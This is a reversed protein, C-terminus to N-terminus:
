AHTAKVHKTVGMFSLDFSLTEEGVIFNKEQDSSVMITGETNTRVSGIVDGVQAFSEFSGDWFNVTTDNNVLEVKITNHSVTATMKTGNNESVWQGDLSKEEAMAVSTTMPGAAPAEIMGADRNAATMFLLTLCTAVIIGLGAVVTVAVRVAQKDTLKKM